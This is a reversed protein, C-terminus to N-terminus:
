KHSKWAEVSVQLVIYVNAGEGIEMCLCQNRWEGDEQCIKIYIGGFTRTAHRSFQLVGREHTQAHLSFPVEEFLHLCSPLKM